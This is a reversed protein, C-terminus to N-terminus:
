AHGLVVHACVRKLMSSVNGRQQDQGKPYMRELFTDVVSSLTAGAVNPPPPAGWRFTRNDMQVRLRNAEIDAETKSGVHGGLLKDLSFQQRRQGPPKHRFRWPHKCKSWNDRQCGCRKEVGRNVHRRKKKVSRDATGAVYAM